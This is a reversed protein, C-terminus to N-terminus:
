FTHRKRVELAYTRDENQSLVWALSESQDFELLVLEDLRSSALSRVYTLYIRDSIRKGITIRASPNVNLRASAQYPDVLLPTIQFSDVGFTQQVVKGVEASLGGTLARTARAELLRQERENPRQQAALEIDGAPSADSFLMTLIDLPPLPPDSTFEPQLRETTGAVRLTVRYTQQPVRVRTEAEVDFFPQIRDPNTFDLSGRTVLYRRGEFRVEGRQIDARGLVVPREATGRVNFDASAVIRTQDNEVRLTSPAILRIDYSLQSASREAVAGEISPIVDAGGSLDFFGGSTDFPRTWLANKVNVVGSLVLATTPGRLALDADVLSRMGEPFRLRMDTAAATVDFESLVYGRLGIRGGFQVPGGALRGSLGDLQVGTANYTLIGNLGELAHPMSFHRLRGDKLLATGSVIPAEVTGTIRAAVEARGSSRVDPLFGQIVALNAAGNATLALAQKPVDVTGALDLETDDGVLRLADIQLMQRDVSMRIPEANRLRYDLFDLRVDDMDVDIRLADPNYLEGVVRIAGSTVASTFSSFQPNFARLYPDLSTDTVRFSLECDMEDTLAVRGTGSVALRTSAAEVEYVMVIGRVSLRGSVEGVGEDGYFLDRIGFRVDYRPQDFDGSGNASFDLLGTLAPGRSMQAMALADVAMGRGDVNFSYSGNWGVYAAGTSVVGGKTISLGDLRVGAGEFRLAAEGLSFPEDYAVGDTIAMRGFGYPQTYQGYFHFDGGVRGHVDYDEIDFANLFDRVDRDTIRVRADVEEGGDARPYGLSFKGSIDMVSQEHRIVVRSIQAYNNEVVFDGEAEDWTVGWARMEDGVFHGEIRPRRFAGLMVGDFRGVGDVAIPTTRAGFATMLGALLRDSEQFNRSTVRFPMNSREGWATAGEFAVYTDRTAVEGPEVHIAAGDFRYTAHGGIAVPESPWHNSFPGYDLARGRADAAALDSLRPGQLTVEPPATVAITGEGEREAFAGLPWDLRNRGNARGALRIGDTQIHNTFALLDVDTYTVDFIGRTRQGRIGLPAMTYTFDLNGGYFGSTARTVDFRNPVWVLSGKLDPFKYDNLGADGSFFDGKLERGGKFMHFTGDFTGRGSLSFRDNAFFIERMKPLQYETHITYIQEPWQALDLRGTMDSVAGDTILQMQDFELQSGQIRFTAGLRATMPVYDQVRLTSDSFSIRGRYEILKAVSVDLNRAIMSWNSGFDRFEVEGRYAHVYQLTTVVPRPGTRPARPPGTVRPFTQRGDVHSEVVMRWDTMEISDLLVERGLLARWTLSAEVRKAVLWPDEGPYMGDIVLDEVVFRGSALHIGLRGIHVGREFWGTGAREARAKLAPGLDITVVSVLTVALAIAVVVVIARTYRYSAAILRRM